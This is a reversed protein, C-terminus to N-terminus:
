IGKFNGLPPYYGIRTNLGKKATARQFKRSPKFGAKM